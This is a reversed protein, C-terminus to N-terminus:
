REPTITLVVKRTMNESITGERLSTRQNLRCYMRELEVTLGRVHDGGNERKSVREAVDSMSVVDLDPDVVDSRGWKLVGGM